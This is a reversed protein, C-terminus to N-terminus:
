GLNLSFNLKKIVELQRKAEAPKGYRGYTVDKGRDHGLIEAAQDRPVDAQKLANAVTYKFSHFVKNKSAIGRSKKLKGFWKSPGQGYGDRSRQLEPFLRAEGQGKLKKVQKILGMRELEPHVPILREAAKSKLKKDHNSNISIVNIGHEDKFDERKFADGKQKNSLPKLHLKFSKWDKSKNLVVLPKM